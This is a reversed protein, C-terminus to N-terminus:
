NSEKVFIITELSVERPKLLISYIIPNTIMSLKALLAATTMLWRNRPSLSNGFVQALALVNYPTWAFLYIFISFGTAIVFRRDQQLYFLRRRENEHRSESVHRRLLNDDFLNFEELSVQSYLHTLRHTTRQIFLNVYIIIMLPLFYVFIFLLFFYIRGTRSRDFWNLGCHFGLGEPVYVNIRGFLPPVAWLGSLVFCVILLLGGRTQLLNQAENSLPSNATTHFRVISLTVLMYMTLCGNFFSNFGELQCIFSSCFRRCLFCQAVVSPVSISIICLSSVFMGLVFHRDRTSIQNKRLSDISILFSILAFILLISAAFRSFRCEDLSISSKELTSNFRNILRHVCYTEESM